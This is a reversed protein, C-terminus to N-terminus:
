DRVGCSMDLVEGWTIDIVIEWAVHWTVDILLAACGAFEPLSRDSKAVDQPV